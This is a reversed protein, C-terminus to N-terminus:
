SSSSRSCIICLTKRMIKSSLNINAGIFRGLHTSGSWRQRKANGLEVALEALKFCRPSTLHLNLCSINNYLSSDQIQTVACSGPSKFNSFEMTSAFYSEFIREGVEREELCRKAVEFCPVVATLGQKLIPLSFRFVSYFSSLVHKYCPCRDHFL